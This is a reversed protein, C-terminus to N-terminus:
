DGLEDRVIMDSFTESRRLRTIAGNQELGIVGARPFSFAREEPLFYAGTDMIAVGDGPELPSSRWIPMIVDGMHCIPGVVRYPQVYGSRHRLPLLQHWEDQIPDSIATGGDLILYHWDAERRRELVTVLLFQADGTLSRGPELALQPVPGQIQRGYAVLQDEVLAMYEEGALAATPQPAPPERLFVQAFRKEWAALSRVSPVPLSGGCDLIEPSWGLEKHLQSLWQFLETLFALAADRDVLLHGRHCHIGVMDFEPCNLLYRVIEGAQSMAIGFQGSWASRGTVRLGVRLRQGQRRALERVREIEEVHNFNFLLIQERLAKTIAEDHKAPGNFIIRSPPVGLRRALWYEYWSIVEAGVGAQHLRQLLGPLPNTKYSYFLHSLGPQTLRRFSHLRRMLREFDIVHVPSGYEALLQNLAHPPRYLLNDQWALGWNAAPLAAKQRRSKCAVLWRGWSKLWHKLAAEDKNVSFIAFRVGRIAPLACFL